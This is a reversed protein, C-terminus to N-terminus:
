KNDLEEMLDDYKIFTGDIMMGKRDKIEEYAFELCEYPTAGVEDAVLDAITKIAIISSQVKSREVKSISTALMNIAM